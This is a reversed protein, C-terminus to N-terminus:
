RQAFTESFDELTNYEGETSLILGEEKFKQVDAFIDDYSQTEVANPTATPWLTFTPRPTRTPTSPVLTQTPTVAPAQLSGMSCGTLLLCVVLVITYFRNATRVTRYGGPHNTLCPM